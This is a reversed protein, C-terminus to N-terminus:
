LMCLSVLNLALAWFLTVDVEPTGLTVAADGHELIHQALAGSTFGVLVLGWVSTM